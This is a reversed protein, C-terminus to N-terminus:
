FKNQLRNLARYSFIAIKLIDKFNSNYCLWIRIGQTGKRTIAQGIGFEIRSKYSYYELYGKQGTISKTRRWRNLRGQFRLRVAIREVRQASFVKLITVFFAILKTEKRKRPLKSLLFAYFNAMFDVKKLYRSFFTIRVLDKIYIAVYRYRSEIKRELQNLFEASKKKEIMIQKSKLEKDRNMEFEFRTISLANLKYFSFNSQTLISVIKKVQETSSSSNYTANLQDSTLKYIFSKKIISNNLKNAFSKNNSVKNGFSKKTFRKKSFLIKKKKFIYGYPRNIGVSIKKEIKTGFKLLRKFKVKSKYKNVIYDEQKITHTYSTSVLKNKSFQKSIFSSIKKPNPKAIIDILQNVKSSFIISNEDIIEFFESSFFFDIKKIYFFQDEKSSAGKNTNSTNKNYNTQINYFFNYSNYYNFAQSETYLNLNIKFIFLSTFYRIVSDINKNPMISKDKLISWYVYIHYLAIKPVVKNNKFEQQYIFKEIIIYIFFSHIHEKLIYFNYSQKIIKKKNKVIPALFSTFSM